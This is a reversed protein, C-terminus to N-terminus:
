PKRLSSKLWHSRMVSSPTSCRACKSARSSNLRPHHRSIVSWPMLLRVVPWGSRPRIKRIRRSARQEIVSSPTPYRALKCARSSNSRFPHVLMPLTASPFENSFRFLSLARSTDYQGPIIYTWRTTLSLRADGRLQDGTRVKSNNHIEASTRTPLTFDGRELRQFKAVRADLVSMYAFEITQRSEFFEIEVGTEDAVSRNSVQCVV